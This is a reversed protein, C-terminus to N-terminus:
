SARSCTPLIKNGAVVEGYCMDEGSSHDLSFCAGSPIFFRPFGPALSADRFTSGDPAEHGAATM